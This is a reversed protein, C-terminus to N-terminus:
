AAMRAEAQGRVSRYQLQITSLAKILHNKHRCLLKERMNSVYFEVTRPTLDLRDAIEKYKLGQKMLTYCEYERSTLYTGIYPKGLYYRDFRSM